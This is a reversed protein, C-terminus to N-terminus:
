KEEEGSLNESHTSQRGRKPLPELDSLDDYSDGRDSEDSGDSRDSEDSGDSTDSEDSGDSRESDMKPPMDLSSKSSTLM